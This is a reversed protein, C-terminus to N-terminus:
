NNTFKKLKDKLDEKLDYVKQKNINKYKLSETWIGYMKDFNKFEPLVKDNIVHESAFYDVDVMLGFRYMKTMKNYTSDKLSLRFGNIMQFMDVFNIFNQASLSFGENKDGLDKDTVFKSGFLKKYSCHTYNYVIDFYDQVPSYERVVFSRLNYDGNEPRIRGKYCLIYIVFEKLDRGDLLDNFENVYKDYLYEKDKPFFLNHSSMDRRWKDFQEVMVEISKLKHRLKYKIGEGTIMWSSKGNADKIVDYFLKREYYMPLKIHKVINNKDPMSIMGTDFVEDMDNYLIM